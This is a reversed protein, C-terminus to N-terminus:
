QVGVGSERWNVDTKPDPAHYHVEVKDESQKWAAHVTVFELRLINGLQRAKMLEDGGSAKM